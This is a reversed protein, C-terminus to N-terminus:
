IKKKNFKYEDSIKIMQQAHDKVIPTIERGALMRALEEVRGLEDLKAVLTKAHGKNM